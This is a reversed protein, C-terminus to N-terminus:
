FCSLELVNARNRTYYCIKDVNLVRKINDKDSEQLSTVASEFIGKYELFISGKNCSCGQQDTTLKDILGKLPAFAPIAFLQPNSILIQAFNQVSSFVVRNM